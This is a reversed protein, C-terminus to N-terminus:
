TSWEGLALTPNNREHITELVPTYEYPDSFQYVM